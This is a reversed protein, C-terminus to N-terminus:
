VFGAKRASATSGDVSGAYISSLLLVYTEGRTTRAFVQGADARLEEIKAVNLGVGESAIYLTVTRGEAFRIMGQADTEGGAAEVIAKLEASTM